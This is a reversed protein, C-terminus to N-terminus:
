YVKKGLTLEGLVFDNIDSVVFKMFKTALLPYNIYTDDDGVVVFTPDYLSLTHALARLPRRQGCSWSAGAFNMRSTPMGLHYLMYQSLDECVTTGLRCPHQDESAM